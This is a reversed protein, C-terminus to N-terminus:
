DFGFCKQKQIYLLRWVGKLINFFNLQWTRGVCEVKTQSPVHFFFCVALEAAAIHAAKGWKVSFGHSTIPGKIVPRTPPGPRDPSTTCVLVESPSSKGEVNSAFLQFFVVILKDKSVAVAERAPRCWVEKLLQVFTVLSSPKDCGLTHPITIVSILNDNHKKVFWLSKKGEKWWCYIMVHKLCFCHQNERELFLWKKFTVTDVQLIKRM